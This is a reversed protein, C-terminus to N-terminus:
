QLYNSRYNHSHPTQLAKVIAAFLSISFIFFATPSFMALSLLSEIKQGTIRSNSAFGKVSRRTEITSLTDM